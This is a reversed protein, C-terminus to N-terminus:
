HVFQGDSDVHDGAGFGDADAAGEFANGAPGTFDDDHEILFNGIGGLFDGQLVTRFDEAFRPLAKALM